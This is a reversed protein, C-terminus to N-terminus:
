NVHELMDGEREVADRFEEQGIALALSEADFRIPADVMAWGDTNVIVVGIAVVELCM